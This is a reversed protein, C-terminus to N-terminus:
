KTNMSLILVLLKLHSLDKVLPNINNTQKFRSIIDKIEKDIIESCM